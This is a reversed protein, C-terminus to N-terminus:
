DEDALHIESNIEAGILLVVGSLYLWLMLLIVGGISGYTANYNGFYGVYIRLGESMLLWAVLAFAAGPSVWHWPQEVDPALYYVLTIGTLVCLVLVPWRAINWTHTFATGLGVMGAVAEGIREGFVLLLLATLTFLSFGVTLGIAVLRKKWWVREDKVDYAVNLATVISGMGNSAAWLAAFVGISLLSGSAGRMIESLTKTVMSAADGPLVREVYSMLEDMLHPIPLLGVLATLFLLTPFLAFLFYYSLGAARDLVEDEWLQAYVREFLRRVTLGGLKWPSEAPGARQRRRRRDGDVTVACHYVRFAESADLFGTPRGSKL